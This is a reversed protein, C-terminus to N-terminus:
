TLDTDAWQTATWRGFDEGRPELVTYRCNPLYGTFAFDADIGAAHRTMVRIAAGHSVVIADKESGASEADALQAALDELVPRYRGDVDPYTEGSPLCAAPDGDIWGRLAVQFSRHADESNDMEFDGVFIEHLGPVVDVAISFEPLGAEVEFARMALQATQQARLAVSCFVPGLREAGVLGALERGADQAQYRGRESLEAGPPRTDLRRNINSLTQGHRLLIIRGSM